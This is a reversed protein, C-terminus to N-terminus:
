FYLSLVISGNMIDTDLTFKSSGGTEGVTSKVAADTVDWAETTTSGNGETELMFGWGYEAGISVKPAVFYEAGVFARLGLGFTSGAKDEILGAGQGFSNSFAPNSADVANGYEYSDKESGLMLLAEAGYKGQLRTKGKSKEIGFGLVINTESHKEVDEVKALPDTSKVDGVLAKQSESLMGIRLNGRYATTEDKVLKFFIAQNGNVFGAAPAGGNGLLPLFPAADIGIAWEGAEPLIAVGNKNKLQAFSITSVFLAMALLSVTKKM